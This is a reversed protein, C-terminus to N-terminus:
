LISLLPESWKYSLFAEVPGTLIAIAISVYALKRNTQFHDLIIKSNGPRHYAMLLIVSINIICASLWRFHDIGLPYLLLPAHCLILILATSLRETRSDSKEVKLFASLLLIYIPATTLVYIAHQVLTNMSWFFDASVQLSQRLPAFRTEVAARHIHPYTQKLHTLYEPEQITPSALTIAALVALASVVICTSLIFFYRNFRHHCIVAALLLPSALFLSGEHVGIILGSVITVM